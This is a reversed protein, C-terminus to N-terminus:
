VSWQSAEPCEGASSGQLRGSLAAADTICDNDIVAPPGERPALGRPVLCTRVDKGAEATICLHARSFLVPMLAFYQNMPALRVDHVMFHETRATKQKAPLIYIETM